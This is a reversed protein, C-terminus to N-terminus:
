HVVPSNSLCNKLILVRNEKGLVGFYDEQYERTGPHWEVQIPGKCGTVAKKM